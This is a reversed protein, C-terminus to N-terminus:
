VNKDKIQPYHQNLYTLATRYSHVSVLTGLHKTPSFGLKELKSLWAQYYDAHAQHCEALAQSIAENPDSIKTVNSQLAKASCSFLKDELIDAHSVTCVSVLCALLMLFNRANM